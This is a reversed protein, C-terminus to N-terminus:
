TKKEISAIVQLMKWEYLMYYSLLLINMYPTKLHGISDQTMLTFHEELKVKKWNM